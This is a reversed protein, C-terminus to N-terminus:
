VDHQSRARESEIEHLQELRENLVAAIAAAIRSNSSSDPLTSREAALLARLVDIDHRLHEVEDM